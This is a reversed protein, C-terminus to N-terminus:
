IPKPKSSTSHGTRDPDANHANPNISHYWIQRNAPLIYFVHNSEV